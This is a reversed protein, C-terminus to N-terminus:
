LDTERRLSWVLYPIVLLGVSLLLVIGIAAGRAFNNADFTTTWMYIAPVDLRLDKGSLAVILDFVKLSLHGLIILASLLAPRLLPLIIRRYVQLESAGDVRAAEKLEEPIARLGGLFLAMTFGSMQWVAPLAVFAMGWPPDSTHWASVLPDLGIGDLILNFGSSRSGTSPNMLWRWAVGTVILSIALPFLFISRFLGEGPVHRDLLIALLLGLAVAGVVFFTTFVLTNRMDIQFRRDGILEAFNALGAWDYNPTLGQWESLSVRGSWAIFGYVFIGIAIISPLLMAVPVWHRRIATM